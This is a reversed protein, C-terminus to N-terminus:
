AGIERYLSFPTYRELVIYKNGKDLILCKTHKSSLDTTMEGDLTLGYVHEFWLPSQMTGDKSVLNYYGKHKILVHAGFSYVFDVYKPLITEGLSVSFINCAGRTEPTSLDYHDHVSRLRYFPNTTATSGGDKKVVVYMEEYDLFIKSVVLSLEPSQYGNPSFVKKYGDGVLVISADPGFGIKGTNRPSTKYEKTTLKNNIFLFFISDGEPYFDSLRVPHNVRSTPEKDHM